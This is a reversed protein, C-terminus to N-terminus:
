SAKNQQAFTNTLPVQANTTTFGTFGADWQGTTFTGGTNPSYISWYPQYPNTWPRQPMYPYARYGGRGCHECYGCNPCSDM